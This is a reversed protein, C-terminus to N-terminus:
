LNHFHPGMASPEASLGIKLEQAGAAAVWGIVAAVALVQKFLVQRFTFQKFTVQKFSPMGLDRQFLGRDPWNATRAKASRFGGQDRICAKRWDGDMPRSRGPRRHLM